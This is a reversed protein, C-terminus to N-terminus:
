VAAGEEESAADSADAATATPEYVLVARNEPHLRAEAVAKVEEATVDLVKPLAENLLKPDGFLVAYRCLEDARGAVTTLRDLWEREIQAQARELEEATPGEAAFRALEEDVAADIQAITADGSTKVDLWGLSPAGALRLLGFGAAVATRDRRVLRNYLRSSEGSGLITLALDAADAERTGDQPLRYAAMLARSPVDETLNQRLERGITDPLEGSRPPQKGDHAPISGFYKEVWAITQEPDIDGVISLVANNPAYYTRFFARADDLTAADLDAMSGIPTHHYPHGDPFSLATLKEFATGYPVNDYRQRRENKVVARQNEMSTEDLAALLSGMRDAELWLALELQHAPMTEYYNTREFSTTGNLSGGAGQVLEFHGNNSVNASGQFMLHEFLHALGTRGKVEHRSGVDYWLCVAAVPTLRDESLVVRLGNALRHETIAIGRSSAPAPNAM